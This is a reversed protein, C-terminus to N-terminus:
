LSHSIKNTKPFVGLFVVPFLKEDEDKPKKKGKRQGNTGNDGKM